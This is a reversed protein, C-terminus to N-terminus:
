RPGEKAPMPTVPAGAPWAAVREAQRPANVGARDSTVALSPGTRPALLGM